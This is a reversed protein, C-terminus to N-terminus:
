AYDRNMRNNLLSDIYMFINLVSLLLKMALTIHVHEISIYVTLKLQM